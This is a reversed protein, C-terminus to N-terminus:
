LVPYIDKMLITVIAVAVADLRHTSGEPRTAMLSRSKSVYQRLYIVKYTPASYRTEDIALLDRRWLYVASISLTFLMSTVTVHELLQHQRGSSTLFTVFPEQIAMVVPVM